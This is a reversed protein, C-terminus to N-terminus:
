YRAPHPVLHGLDVPFTSLAALQEALLPAKIWFQFREWIHPVHQVGRPVGTLRRSGGVGTEHDSSHEADRASVGTRPSSYAQVRPTLLRTGYTMVWGHMSTLSLDHTSTQGTDHM